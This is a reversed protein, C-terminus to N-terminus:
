LSHNSCGPGTLSRLDCAGVVLFSFACACVLNLYVHATCFLMDIIHHREPPRPCLILGKPLDSDRGGEGGGGGLM